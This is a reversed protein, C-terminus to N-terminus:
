VVMVHPGDPADASGPLRGALLPIGLADFYGATIIRTAVVPNRGAQSTPEGKLRYSWNTNGQMPLLSAGAAERVGPLARLRSLLQTQFTRVSADGPYSTEPLTIRVVLREDVGYGLPRARLGVFGQIVLLASVLLVTALAFEAGVVTARLRGGGAGPGGELGPRVDERASRLAPALGTLLGVGLAIVTTFALIRGSLTVDRVAPPLFPPFLTHMGRVGLAAIGVGLVGGALALLVSETLLQRVLRGRSAGLATRLALERRRASGRVLLLNAVNACAILL